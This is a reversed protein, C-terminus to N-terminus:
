LTLFLDLFRQRGAANPIHRALQEAYADPALANKKMLMLRTEESLIFAVPGLEKCLAEDIENLRAIDVRGSEDRPVIHSLAQHRSIIIKHVMGPNCEIVGNAGQKKAWLADSENANRSMLYVDTECSGKENTITKAIRFGSIDPMTTDCFVLGPKEARWYALGKEGSDFIWSSANLILSSFERRFEDASKTIVAVNM